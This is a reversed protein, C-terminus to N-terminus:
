DDSHNCQKETLFAGISHNEASPPNSCATFVKLPDKSGAFKSVPRFVLRISQAVKRTRGNKFIFFNLICYLCNSFIVQIFLTRLETM